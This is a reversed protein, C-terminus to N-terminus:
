FSTTVSIAEGEGLNGDVERNWGLLITYMHIIVKTVTTYALLISKHQQCQFQGRCPNRPTFTKGMSRVTMIIIYM